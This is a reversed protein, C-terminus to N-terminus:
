IDRGEKMGFRIYHEYPNIGSKKVDPNLKLYREPNFNYLDKNKEDINPLDLIRDLLRGILYDDETVALAEQLDIVKKKDYFHPNLYKEVVEQSLKETDHSIVELTKKSSPLSKEIILQCLNQPIVFPPPNGSLDLLRNLKFEITPDHIKREYKEKHKILHRLLSFNTGVNVSNESKFVESDIKLFEALVKQLGQSIEAVRFDSINELSCWKEYQSHFDVAPLQSEVWRELSAGSWAGWQWWSFNMWDVPPKVIFLVDLPVSFRNLADKFAPTLKNAWGENSLIISDDAGTLKDLNDLCKLVDDANDLPPNSAVYNSVSQSQTKTLAPGILVDGNNLLCAYKLTEGVKNKSGLKASFNNGLMSQITSSGCKGAGIHLILKKM